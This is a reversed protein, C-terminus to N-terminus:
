FDAFEQACKVASSISLQEEEYDDFNSADGPGKCKPVFPAEVKKQYIAIWDTPAFWKHNKIDEVGMRLNGFRKTLDVTLIIPEPNVLTYLVASSGRIDLSTLLEQNGCSTIANPADSRPQASLVQNLSLEQTQLIKELLVDLAQDEGILKSLSVQVEQLESQTGLKKVVLRASSDGAFYVNRQAFLTQLFPISFTALLPCSEEGYSFREQRGLKLIPMSRFLIWFIFAAFCLASLRLCNRRVRMRRIDESIDMPKHATDLGCELGVCDASSGADGFDNLPIIDQPHYKKRLLIGSGGSKRCSRERIPESKIPCVYDSVSETERGEEGCDSAPMDLIAAAAMIAYIIKSFSPENMSFKNLEQRMNPVFGQGSILFLYQALQMELQFKLVTIEGFVKRFQRLRMKLAHANASILGETLNEGAKNNVGCFNKNIAKLVKIRNQARGIKNQMTVTALQLSEAQAAPCVNCPPEPMKQVVNKGSAAAQLLAKVSPAQSSMTPQSSKAKLSSKLNSVESQLKSKLAELAVKSPNIKGKFYKAIICKCQESIDGETNEPSPPLVDPDDRPKVCCPSCEGQHHLRWFRAGYADSSEPTTVTISEGLYDCDFEDDDAAANEDEDSSDEPKVEGCKQPVCDPAHPIDKQEQDLPNGKTWFSFNPLFCNM